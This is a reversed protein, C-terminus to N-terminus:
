GAGLQHVRQEDGHAVPLVIMLFLVEGARDHLAAGQRRPLGYALLLKAKM